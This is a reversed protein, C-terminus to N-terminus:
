AYSDQSHLVAFQRRRLIGHVADSLTLSVFMMRVMIEGDAHSMQSTCRIVTPASITATPLRTMECPCVRYSQMTTSRMQM